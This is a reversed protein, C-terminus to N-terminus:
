RQKLTTYQWYIDDDERNKNRKAFLFRVSYSDAFHLFNDTVLKQKCDAPLHFIGSQTLSLVCFTNIGVTRLIDTLSIRRARQLLARGGSATRCTTLLHARRSLFSHADRNGSVSQLNHKNQFTSFIARWSM